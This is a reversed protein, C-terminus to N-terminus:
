IVEEISKKKTTVIPETYIPKKPEVYEMYRFAEHDSENVIIFTDPGTQIQVTPISAM